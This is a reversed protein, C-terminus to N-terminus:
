PPAAVAIEEDDFRVALRLHLAEAVGGALQGLGAAVRELDALDVEVAVLSADFVNVDGRELLTAWPPIERGCQGSRRSLSYDPLAGSPLAKASLTKASRCSAQDTEFVLPALM